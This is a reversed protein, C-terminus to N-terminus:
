APGQGAGGAEADQEGAAPAAAEDGRPGRGLLSRYALTWLASTFVGTVAYLLLAVVTLLGALCTAALSGVAVEEGAVGLLLVPLILGTTPLAVLLRAIGTLLAWMGALAGM